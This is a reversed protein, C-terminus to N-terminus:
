DFIGEPHHARLYIRKQGYPIQNANLVEICSSDFDMPVFKGYPVGPSQPPLVRLWLQFDRERISLRLCQWCLDQIEWKIYDVNTNLLQAESHFEFIPVLDMNLLPEGTLFHVCGEPLIGEIDVIVTMNVRCRRLPVAPRLPPDVWDERARFSQLQHHQNEAASSARHPYTGVTSPLGYPLPEVQPLPVGVFPQDGPLHGDDLSTSRQSPTLSPERLPNAMSTLLIFSNVFHQFSRFFDFFLDGALSNLSLMMLDVYFLFALGSLNLLFTVLCYFLGFLRFVIWDWVPVFSLGFWLVVCYRWNLNFFTYLMVRRVPAFM